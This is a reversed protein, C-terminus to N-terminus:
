PVMYLYLLMTYYPKDHCLGDSILQITTPFFLLSGNGSPTEEKISKFLNDITPFHYRPPYNVM